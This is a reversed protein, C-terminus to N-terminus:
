LTGKGQAPMQLAYGKEKAESGMTPFPRRDSMPQPRDPHADGRGQGRDSRDPGVQKQGSLRQSVKDEYGPELEGRHLRWGAAPAAPEEPPAPRRTSFGHPSRPRWGAYQGAQPAGGLDDGRCRDDEPSRMWKNNCADEGDAFRNAVDMLESVTKPKIRGM